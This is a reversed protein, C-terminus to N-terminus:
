PKEQAAQMAADIKFRLDESPYAIEERVGYRVSPDYIRLIIHSHGPLWNLRATEARGAEIAADRESYAASRLRDSEAVASIAADREARLKVVEDCEDPSVPLMTKHRLKAGHAADSLNDLVRVPAGVCGAFQYAEACVSEAVALAAQAQDFLASVNAYHAKDRERADKYDACLSRLAEHSDAIRQRSTACDVEIYICGWTGLVCQIEEYLPYVDVNIDKADPTDQMPVSVGAVGHRLVFDVLPKALAIIEAKMPPGIEMAAYYAVRPARTGKAAWKKIVEQDIVKPETM